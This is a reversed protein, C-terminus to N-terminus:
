LEYAWELSLKVTANSSEAEITSFDPEGQIKVLNQITRSHSEGPNM